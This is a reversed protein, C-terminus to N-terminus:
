FHKYFLDVDFVLDSLVIMNSFLRSHKSLARHLYKLGFFLILLLYNINQLIIKEICFVISFNGFCYPNDYLSFCFKIFLFEFM